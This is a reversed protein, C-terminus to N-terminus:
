YNTQHKNFGASLTIFYARGPMPYARIVEYRTNLLNEVRFGLFIFASKIKIEYGTMADMIIYGPQQLSKDNSDVSEYKGSAHLNLSCMWDKWILYNSFKASHLPTYMLQKGEYLANDDYTRLIVSRNLAYVLISSFQLRETQYRYVLETEIGKAHVTKYEVPTLSDRIVWQIWNDVCQFFGGVTYRFSSPGSGTFLRGEFGADIGWGKEPRLDPNGGPKWYKENFSPKRFKNSINTRVVLQEAMKYKWGFSYLLAPDPGELFEKRLGLDGTWKGLHLKMFASFAIENEQVRFGYNNSIGSLANYDAGAGLTVRGSLYYRYEAENRLQRTGIKSDISFANDEAHIKDTYHLDDTLWATRMMFVSKGILKRYAVYIKFTSDKQLANSATYNGMLAPIELVKQQYWSGAELMSGDKFKLFFNQIIGTAAFANHQRRLVPNGYKYRDTYPFDNDAHQHLFSANYQCRHNGTQVSIRNSITGFSGGDATYETAFRNEWDPNNVMNVMGGFTGSGFLTGSAGNIVDVQQMFGAPILSLDAQGTAPSNIAIGNWTIQTHNTGTGRVSVSSLFGAPGYQRVMVPTQCILIDGLSNHGNHNLTLPDVHFSAKDECFFCANTESVMVEPIMCTTAQETQQAVSPILLCYWLFFLIIIPKLELM